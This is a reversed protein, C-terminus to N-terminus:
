PAPVFPCFPEYIGYDSNLVDSLNTTFPQVSNAVNPGFLVTHNLETM